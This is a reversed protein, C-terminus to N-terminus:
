PTNARILAQLEELQVANRAAAAIDDALRDGADAPAAADAPQELHQAPVPLPEGAPQQVCVAHVIRDRLQVVPVNVKEIRDVYRVEVQQSATLQKAAQAADAERHAEMREAEAAADELRQSRAGARYSLVPVLLIALLLLGYAALRAGATGLKEALWDAIM